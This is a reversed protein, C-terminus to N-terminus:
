ERERAGLGSGEGNIGVKDVRGERCPHPIGIEGQGGGKKRGNDGESRGRKRRRGM